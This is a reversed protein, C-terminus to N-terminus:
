PKKTYTILPPPIIYDRNAKKIINKAFNTWFVANRNRKPFTMFRSDERNKRNFIIICSHSCFKRKNHTLEFNTGCNLCKGIKPKKPKRKSNEWNPIKDKYEEKLQNYITKNIIQLNIIQAAALIKDAKLKTLFPTIEIYSDTEPLYFDPLYSFHEFTFRTPEYTWKIKLYNLIRAFNAEWTSRFYQDLDERTEGIGRGTTHTPARNTPVGKRLKSMKERKEKTWSKQLTEQRKKKEEESMNSYHHQIGESIKKKWEETLNDRHNRNKKYFEAQKETTLLTPNLKAEERYQNFEEETRFLLPNLSQTNSSTKM